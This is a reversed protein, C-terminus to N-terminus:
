NTLNETNVNGTGEVKVDAQGARGEAVINGTGNILVKLKPTDLGSLSIGGAGELTVSVSPAQLATCNIAGVGNLVAKVPSTMKVTGLRLCKGGNLTFENVAPAYVRIVAVDTEKMQYNHAISVTLKGDTSVKVDIHGTLHRPTTMSVRYEEGPATQVYSVDAFCDIEVASFPAVNVTRGVYRSTDVEQEAVGKVVENINTRQCAGLPLLICLIIYLTSKKM